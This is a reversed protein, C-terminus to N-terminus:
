SSLTCQSAAAWVVAELSGSLCLVKRFTKFFIPNPSSLTLFRPTEM